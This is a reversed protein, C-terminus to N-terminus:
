GPRGVMRAIGAVDREDRIRVAEDFLHWTEEHRTSQGPRLTVLPGLSELELFDENAFTEFNVGGDPYAAGEMRRFTKVFLAGGVGYAVWGERHVIGLKNPGRRPDQRFLLHGSRLTWRPDALDTYGWLSWEQNHTLRDTHAIKKPLPIVAVGNRAMATLAWVALKASRRGRNTLIHAVHAVNKREALRVEMTKQIGSLCGVPQVARVGGAMRRIEVPGNDLEYTKPKEEPAIWLRHGGRIQWEAEGRGGMQGKM